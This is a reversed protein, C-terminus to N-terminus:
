DEEEESDDDGQVETNEKEVRAMLQALEEDEVASVTKPKMKISVKGDSKEISETIKELAQELLAIGGQKDTSHTVLVYLPPAVLKIKIPITETSLAEGARLAEKVADIGEYGFCSVEVDARIKVPQPTLRRAINAELERRVDEDIQLGDFVKAAETVSLKFADYSHGYTRDLPWVVTEYLEEIPRGLKGSVHAVISNVARSKSYREECKIVDEPSVRRKSLDIYGKEKDVRLVVVVENRGVRILKQISRIRRRSLESLLIMGEANDYELLKVYAGMEAIQRVQCMVIEETDPLPKEYFRM